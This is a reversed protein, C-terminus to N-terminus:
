KGRPMESSLVSTVHERGAAELLALQERIEHEMEAISNTEMERDKRKVREQLALAPSLGMFEDGGTM